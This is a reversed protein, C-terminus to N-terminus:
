IKHTRPSGLNFQKLSYDKTPFTSYGVDDGSASSNQWLCVSVVCCMATAGRRDVQTASDQKGTCGGALCSGDM